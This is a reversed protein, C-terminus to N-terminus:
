YRPPDIEEKKVRKLFEGLYYYFQEEMNIKTSTKPTELFFFEPIQILIVCRTKLNPSTLPTKAHLNEFASFLFSVETDPELEGELRGGLGTWENLLYKNVM